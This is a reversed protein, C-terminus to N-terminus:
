EYLWEATLQYQGYRWDYNDTWNVIYSNAPQLQLIAVDYNPKTAFAAALNNGGTPTIVTAVSVTRVKAISTNVDQLIEGQARGPIPIKAIVKVYQNYNVESVTIHESLVGSLLPPFISRFEYSYSIQGVIPFLGVETVFPTNFPLTIGYYNAVRNYANPVVVGYYYGSAAAFKSQQPNTDTVALGQVEGQLSYTTIGDDLSYHKNIQFTETVNDSPSGADNRRNNFEISYTIVGEGENLDVSKNIPSVQIGMGAAEPWYTSSLIRNYLTNYNNGSLSSWWSYARQFSALVDNDGDYRRGKITGAIGFSTLYNDASTKRSTTWQEFADNEYLTNSFEYQYSVTGDNYNYDLSGARPQVNYTVGSYTSTILSLLGTPGALSALVYEASALRQDYNFLGDYFGKITGNINSVVTTYPDDVIRRTNITYIHNGSATPSALWSETCSYSGALEDVSETRSFNYPNYSGFNLVGSGLSSQNFIGQGSVSSFTSQGTWGLVLRQNVFDRATQWAPQTEGDTSSFIRKGVASVNHSVQFTKVTESPSIEWSESANQILDPVANPNFIQGNLYLIDTEATITYDCTQFWIGEAFSIVINKPQCKIPASADASQFELWAGEFSFLNRLAEQKSEIMYLQHFQNSNGPLTEDPPYGTNIWFQSNWGGWSASPSGGGFPQSAPSGKFSVLKGTITIKYTTGLRQQNGALISEDTFSVLPAPIVAIDNYIVTAM